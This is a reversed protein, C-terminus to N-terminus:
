KTTVNSTETKVGAADTKSEFKTQTKYKNGPINQAVGNIFSYFVEYTNWPTGPSPLAAVFNFFVIALSVIIAASHIQIWSLITNM